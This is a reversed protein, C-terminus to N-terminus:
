EGKNDKRNLLPRHKKILHEELEYRGFNVPFITAKCNRLFETVNKDEIDSFYRKKKNIEKLEYGLIETGIHRRLASFYTRGSHTTIREGVNSSEGVYILKDSKDKVLYLGANSITALDFWKKFTTQFLQAEGQKLLDIFQSQVQEWLGNQNKIEFRKRKELQFSNLITPLNVIGFEEVEKRGINTSITQIKFNDIDTNKLLQNTKIVNQFNKYFTSTAPKAQQKIRKLLEKAEGIYYPKKDLSILYNGFGKETVDSFNVFPRSKLLFLGDSLIEDSQKQIIDWTLKSM